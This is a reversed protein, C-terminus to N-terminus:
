RNFSATAFSFEVPLEGGAEVADMPIGAAIQGILPVEADDDVAPPPACGRVLRGALGTLRRDPRPL